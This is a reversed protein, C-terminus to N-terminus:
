QVPLLSRFSLVRLFFSFPLAQRQASVTDEM